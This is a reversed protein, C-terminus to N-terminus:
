FMGGLREKAVWNKYSMLKAKNKKNKCYKLYGKDTTETPLKKYGSRYFSRTGSWPNTINSM